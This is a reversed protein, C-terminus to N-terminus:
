NDDEAEKMGSSTLKINSQNQNQLDYFDQWVRDKRWSDNEQQEQFWRKELESWDGEKHERAFDTNAWEIPAEEQLGRVVEEPGSSKTFLSQTSAVGILLIATRVLSMIKPGGESIPNADVKKDAHLGGELNM